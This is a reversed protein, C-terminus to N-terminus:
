LYAKLKKSEKELREIEKDKEFCQLNAQKLVKAMVKQIEQAKENELKLLDLEKIEDQYNILLEDKEESLKAERQQLLSMEEKLGQLEASLWDNDSAILQM